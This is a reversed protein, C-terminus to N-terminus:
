SSHRFIKWGGISRKQWIIMYRAHSTIRAESPGSIFDYHGIDVYSRTNPGWISGDVTSVVNLLVSCSPTEQLFPIFYERIADYGVRMMPSFTGQLIADVHYLKLVETVDGTALAEIWRQFNEKALRELDM